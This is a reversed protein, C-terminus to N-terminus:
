TRALNRDNELDTGFLEVTSSSVPGITFLWKLSEVTSASRSAVSLWEENFVSGQIIGRAPVDGNGDIMLVPTSFPLSLPDAAATSQFGMVLALAVAGVSVVGSSRKRM